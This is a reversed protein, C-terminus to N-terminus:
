FTDVKSVSTSVNSLVQQTARREGLEDRLSDLILAGASDQASQVRLAQDLCRREKELLRLNGRM